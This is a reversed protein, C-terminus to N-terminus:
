NGSIPTVKQLQVTKSLMVRNFMQEAENEVENLEKGERLMSCLIDKGTSFGNDSHKKM